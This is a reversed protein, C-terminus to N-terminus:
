MNNKVRKKLRGKTLKAILLVSKNFNEDKNYAIFYIMNSIGFCIVCRLLITIFLNKLNVLNCLMFTVIGSFVIIVIYKILDKLYVKLWCKNFVKDFLNHILWPFSIFLTTIVTSLIVGYMGWYNVTALNMFLNSLAVVLPRYRDEHWIGAADKYTNFIKSIEQILFYIVLCLVIKFELLLDEGVWLEMFPQYLNIFCCVCVGSIWCIIFTFMKFDFFNKEKTEVVLSNGIGATVSNFVIAIIGMVSSLIFFYNQYIALATLGMFASIVLTDSSDLIVAGVKSTFLDRIRQNITRQYEKPIVGKPLYNPYMKKAVGAIILNNVSQTALVVIIYWYYNRLLLLVFFQLIYQGFSTIITVKSILDSRQHAQLLSNKYAFLWYTLVTAALNLLYVIYCNIDDPIEGAILKPIFPTLIIGIIAIVLGIIRYYIKYLKLLACINEEDKEAIPKYMSYVMASGVGLEALNLVQLVSSFLSNLGLYKVGMFYIMATRLIFPVFIQFLKLFLGFAINRIANRTRNQGM